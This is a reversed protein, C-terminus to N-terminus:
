TQSMYRPAMDFFSATYLQTYGAPQWAIYKNPRIMCGLGYAYQAMVWYVVLSWDQCINAGCPAPPMSIDSLSRLAFYREGYVDKFSEAYFPTPIPRSWTCIVDTRTLPWSHRPSLALLSSETRLNCNSCLKNTTQIKNMGCHEQNWSYVHVVNHSDSPICTLRYCRSQQASNVHAKGQSECKSRGCPLGEVHPKFCIPWLSGHCGSISSAHNLLRRYYSVGCAMHDETIIESCKM